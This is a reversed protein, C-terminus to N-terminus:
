HCNGSIFLCLSFLERVATNEASKWSVPVTSWAHVTSSQRRQLQGKTYTDKVTAKSIKGMSFWSLDLYSMQFLPLRNDVRKRPWSCSKWSTTEIEYPPLKWKSAPSYQVPLCLKVLWSFLVIFFIFLLHIFKLNHSFTALVYSFIVISLPYM